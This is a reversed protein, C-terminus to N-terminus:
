EGVSVEAEDESPEVDVNGPEDPEPEPKAKVTVNVESTVGSADNSVTVTTEGAAVGSVNGDEDVIAIDENSSKFSVSKDTADEPQVTANIKETADVEVTLSEPVTIETVGISNTKFKPVDVKDSEGNENEWSVQYAGKPYETNPELNEITVTGVGDKAESSAILDEGKYLNLQNAM